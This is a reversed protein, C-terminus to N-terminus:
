WSGGFREVRRMYKKRMSFVSQPLWRRGRPTLYGTDNFHTAIQRDSWSQSKLSTIAAILQQQYPSLPRIDLTVPGSSVVLSM